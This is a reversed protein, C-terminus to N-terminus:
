AAHTEGETPRITTTHVALELARNGRMLDIPCQEPSNVLLAYDLAVDSGDVHVLRLEIPEGEQNQAVYRTAEVVRPVESVDAFRYREGTRAVTIGTGRLEHKLRQTRQHPTPLSESAGRQADALVITSRQVGETPCVMWRHIGAPASAPRIRWSAPVEIRTLPGDRQVRREIHDSRTPKALQFLLGCPWLLDHLKEWEGLPAVVDVRVLRGNDVFGTTRRVEARGCHARVAGIEFRGRPTSLWRDVQIAWGGATWGHRVWARPDVEWQLRTVSIIVRPGSLDSTPSFVGLLDARGARPPAGMQTARGWGRPIAVTYMLSPDSQPVVGIRQHTATVTQVLKNPHDFRIAM